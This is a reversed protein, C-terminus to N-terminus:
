NHALMKHKKQAWEQMFQADCHGCPFPKAASPDTPTPTAAAPATFLYSRDAVFERIFDKTDLPDCVENIDSLSNVPYLQVPNLQDVPPQELSPIKDGVLYSLKEPSKKQHVNRVHKNRADASVLKLQCHQCRYFIRRNEKAPKHVVRRHANVLKQTKRAVAKILNPFPSAAMKYHIARVHEQKESESKMQKGCFGCRFAPKDLPSKKQQKEPKLTPSSGAHAIISHRTLGQSWNYDKPCQNCKYKKTSEDTGAPTGPSSTKADPTRRKASTKRAKSAEKFDDDESSRTKPKVSKNLVGKFDKIRVSDSSVPAASTRKKPKKHTDDVHRRLHRDWHYVKDCQDCPYGREIRGVKNSSSVVRNKAKCRDIHRIVKSMKSFAGGCNECEFQNGGAHVDGVHKTVADPTHFMRSCHRCSHGPAIPSAVSFASTVTNRAFPKGMHARIEGQSTEVETDTMATSDLSSDDYLGSYDVPAKEVKSDEMSSDAIINIDRFNDVGMVDMADRLDELSVGDLNTEGYYIFKLVKKM